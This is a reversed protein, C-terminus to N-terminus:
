NAPTLDLTHVEAAFVGCENAREHTIPEVYGDIPGPNDLASTQVALSHSVTLYELYLTGDTDAHYQRLILGCEPSVQIQCWHNNCYAVLVALLPTMRTEQASAPIVAALLALAALIHKM